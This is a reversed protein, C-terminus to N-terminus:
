ENILNEMEDSDMLASESASYDDNGSHENSDLFEIENIPKKFFLSNKRM